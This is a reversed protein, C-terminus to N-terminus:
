STGFKKINLLESSYQFLRECQDTKLATPHLVGKRCNSLYLGGQGEIEPSIAAYIPTRAGREPTKFFIKKIFPVHATTSYEFLDTDVIGPHM